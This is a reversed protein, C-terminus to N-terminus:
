RRLGLEFVSVQHLDISSRIDYTSAALAAVRARRIEAHEGHVICWVRRESTPFPREDLRLLATGLHRLYYRYEWSGAAVLEAPRRAALVIETAAATDPRKAPSILERACMVMPPAIAVAVICVRLLQARQPVQALLAGVGEATLAALAPLAYVMVRTGSFPYQGGLGALAALAIPALLLAVFAHERRRLLAAVGAAMPILLIGGFPRFCYDAIAVSSRAIWSLLALPDFEPPFAWQWTELITASRQASVPVAVLWAASAVAIVLLVAFALRSQRLEGRGAVFLAFTAGLVLFMGPYSLWMSCPALIALLTLRTALRWRHTLVFLSGVTAALLVDITYPKAEVSHGVLKLSCAMLLVAVPVMPPRIVRTMPLFVVLAACSALLPIARMMWTGDGVNVAVWRELWLFLPPAAEHYTLPGLLSSYGREIVNVLLAAEDHWVDPSRAYQL